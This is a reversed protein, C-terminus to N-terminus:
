GTWASHLKARMDLMPQWTNNVQHLVNGKKPVAELHAKVLEIVSPHLYMLMAEFRMPFSADTWTLQSPTINMALLRPLYAAFHASFEASWPHACREILDYHKSQWTQELAFLPLADAECQDPSPPPNTLHAILSEAAQRVSLVRDTDAVRTLFPLDVSSLNISLQEVFNARLNPEEREWTSELMKRAQEPDAFRLAGFFTRRTIQAGTRWASDDELQFAAFRWMKGVLAALWRGRVGAVLAGLAPNHKETLTLLHPINEERARQRHKLALQLWEEILHPERPSIRSLLEGALASIPPLPDPPCPPPLARGFPAPITGVRRLSGLVAAMSLLAGEPDASNLHAFAEGLAGEVQPPVFPQRDTGLLAAALAKQWLQEVSEADM